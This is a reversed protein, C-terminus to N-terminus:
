NPIKDIISNALYLGWAMGFADLIVSMKIGSLVKELEL